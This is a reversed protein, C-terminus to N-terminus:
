HAKKSIDIGHDRRYKARYCRHKRSLKDQKNPPLLHIYEQFFKASSIICQFLDQWIESEFHMKWARYKRITLTCLEQFETCSFITFCLDWLLKCDGRSRGRKWFMKLMADNRPHKPRRHWKTVLNKELSFAGFDRLSTNRKKCRSNLTNM